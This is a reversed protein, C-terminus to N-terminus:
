KKREIQIYWKATKQIAEDTTVRPHYGLERKAKDICFHFDGKLHDVIYRTILPRSNIKFTSYIFELISALLYAFHINISIKPKSIYMAKTLKEFYERWTLKIGDTIIYIEGFARKKTGALIIGDVLNEIYTFAGLSRGGRIYALTGQKLLNVMRLLSAHDGPGYVHGPRVITAIIKGHRHFSMVVDEAERKSQCYPFRTPFQPSSEDMNQEGIFSHVEVTSIYIFRKVGAEISAKLLNRTGEVNVKHFYDWPGWDLVAAAVHYVTHINNVATKLSKFDELSGIVTKLNLNHLISLNSKERVLGRVNEGQELLKKSLAAGVFGNAGTVLIQL